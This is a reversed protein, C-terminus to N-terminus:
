LFIIFVLHGTLVKPYYIYVPKGMVHSMNYIYRPLPLFSGAEKVLFSQWAVVGLFTPKIHLASFKTTINSGGCWLVLLIVQAGLLTKPDAQVDVWDSWDESDPQLLNLDKAVWFAYVLSDSWVPHSMNTGSRISSNLRCINSNQFLFLAFQM